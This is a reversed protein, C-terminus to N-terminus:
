HKTWPNKKTTNSARPIKQTNIKVGMQDDGNSTDM